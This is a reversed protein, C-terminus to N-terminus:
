GVERGKEVAVPVEPLVGNTHATFEALRAEAQALQRALLINTVQVQAMPNVKFLEGLLWLADEQKIVLDAM